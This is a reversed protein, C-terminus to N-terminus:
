YWTLEDLHNINATMDALDAWKDNDGDYLLIQSDYGKFHSKLLEKMQTAYSADSNFQAMDIDVLVKDDNDKILIQDINGAAFAAGTSLAAVAIAIPISKVIKPKKNPNKNDRRNKM